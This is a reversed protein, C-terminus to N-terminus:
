SEKNEMLARYIGGKTLGSIQAAAKAAASAPEGAEMREKAFAVAEELTMPEERVRAAGEIVLVFEGKPTEESFRQAAKELTTRIVEEHVKTLERVLAIRRDGFAKLMDRLTNSLKHPAEYFIMTRHETVLEELHERRSKKATSLFGEFTFRGTPLGSLALATAMATPGPVCTVEIGREACLTVLDEGPDSIAPMGADTVLCCHEGAELRACIIEGRERKNHEFYSIMHKKIGFHNLLKVTVRSDEAAIFDCERLAEVARPSFDGLNGIPTGVLTLTGAM